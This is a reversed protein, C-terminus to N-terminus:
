EDDGGGDDGDEMGGAIGENMEDADGDDHSPQINKASIIFTGKRLVPKSQNPLCMM